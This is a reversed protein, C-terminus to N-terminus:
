NSVYIKLTTSSGFDKTKITIKTEGSAKAFPKIEQNDTDINVIEIVDPNKSEVSLVEISKNSEPILSYTLYVDDNQKIEIYNRYKEYPFEHLFYSKTKVSDVKLTVFYADPTSTKCGAFLLVSLLIVAFRKM